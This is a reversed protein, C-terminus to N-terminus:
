GELKVLKVDHFGPLAALAGLLDPPVAEDVNLVMVAPGRAFRRGLQMGFINVNHAGLLTGVKGIAGPTDEHPAVLVYGEPAMNFRHGDIRVVRMEGGLVTGAIERDGQGGGLSAVVTILDSFDSEKARKVELVEIGREKAVLPANVFNVGEVLRELVGKLLAVTLPAVNRATLDGEYRIELRSLPAGILQGLFSGLREALPMFERVPEVLEPRLAPINVASRAGEGALVSAIQEAVDIAVKVQAEQTSAGLHPTLVVRAGLQRLPSGEALPEIEFVDLAAGAVHGDEIAAALAGEDIIGGRACNVIRVGRKLKGLSRADLLHTTEPTKPLHITLFDAQALVEDLPLLEVQMASATEASVFPDYGVVRMGLAQAARAVRSGIKGLGLVGLVKLYVETGMFRERQWTGAKMAADAAPIARALALLMGLTHEAAAVTNGEPSNVVVVGRQTAAPVDINDIGVGARGIIKLRTASALAEATVKTQSRVVLADYAPLAAALEQVSMPGHEDVQAIDALIAVAAPDVRDLVLVRARSIGAPSATQAHTATM